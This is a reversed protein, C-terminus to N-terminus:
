EVEPKKPLEWWGDVFLNNSVFTEDMDGICFAGDIFRGLMPETFNSFSVLVPRDDDPFSDPDDEFIEHWGNLEKMEIMEAEVADVAAQFGRLWYYNVSSIDQKARKVLTALLKDKDTM